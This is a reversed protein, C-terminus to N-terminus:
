SITCKLLIIENNVKQTSPSGPPLYMRCKFPVLDIQTVQTSSLGVVTVCVGCVVVCLQVLLKVDRIVVGSCVVLKM